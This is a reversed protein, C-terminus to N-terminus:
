RSRVIVSNDEYYLDERRYVLHGFNGNNGQLNAEGTIGPIPGNYPAVIIRDGFHGPKDFFTGSLLHTNTTTIESYEYSEITGPEVEKSYKYYVKYYDAGDCDWIINLSDGVYIEDSPVMRINSVEHPVFINSELSGRSTSLKIELESFDIDDNLITDKFNTRIVLNNNTNYYSEYSVIGNLSFYDLELQQKSLLKGYVRILVTGDTYESYTCNINASFGENHTKVLDTECSTLLVIASIFFVIALKM